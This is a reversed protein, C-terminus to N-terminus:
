GDKIAWGWELLPLTAAATGAITDALAPSASASDDLRRTAFIGKAKLYDAAPSDALGEYGRPLRKLPDQTRM